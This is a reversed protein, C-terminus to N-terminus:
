EQDKCGYEQLVDQWEDRETIDIIKQSIQNTLETHKKPLAFAYFQVGFKAPLITLDKYENTNLIQFRMIPEDYIFADIENKIVANLGSKYKDYLHVDKFFHERLYQASSSRKITGVPRDKFDGLKSTDSTLKDVTLSSAVSATLGSILLLGSFMWILAIIKGGRSEPTKDGYGVTTMTVVSWWIGDKIGNWDSRFKDSNVEREFLWILFGFLLILLILALFGSWFNISFISVFFDRAKELPSLQGKVIVSHSAYFSHTFDMKKIRKSTITLPNISVDLGGTSISDLMEGFPTAVYKFPINLEKACRNWLLSSVGGWHDDEEIIFPPSPRYGVLLTDTPAQCVVMLSLFLLYIYLIYRMIVMPEVDFISM